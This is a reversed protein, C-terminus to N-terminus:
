RSSGLEDLLRELPGTDKPLAWRYTALEQVTAGRAALADSLPRNAAGYRQVLVREGELAVGAVAELVKETTFPSAARIDIRVGRANLEGVPKPGRVVVVALALLQLLEATAGLSDTTQFLARTGVGTQFIAMKFPNTRWQRLLGLVAQPEVDPVEELAPALLPIAGRRSILEALHAGTRTELIAVVKSKMANVRRRHTGRDRQHRIGSDVRQVSVFDIRARDGSQPDIEAHDARRRDPVGRRHHVFLLCLGLVGAHRNGPVAAPSETSRRQLVHRRLLHHFDDAGAAVLRDRDRDGARLALDARHRGGAPPDGAAGRHRGSEFARGTHGAGFHFDGIFGGRQLAFLNTRRDLEGDVSLDVGPVPGRRLELEGVSSQDTVLAGTAPFFGHRRRDGRDM